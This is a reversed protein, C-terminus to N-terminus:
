ADAEAVKRYRAWGYEDRGIFEILGQDLLRYIVQEDVSVPLILRTDVDWLMVRNRCIKRRVRRWIKERHGIENETQEWEKPVIVWVRFLMDLLEDSKTITGFTPATM